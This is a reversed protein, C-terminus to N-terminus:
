TQNLTNFVNASRVSFRFTTYIVWFTQCVNKHWLNQSVFDNHSLIWIQWDETGPFVETFRRMEGPIDCERREQSVQPPAPPPAVYPGSGLHMKTVVVDGFYVIKEEELFHKIPIYNLFNM